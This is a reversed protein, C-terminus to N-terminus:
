SRFSCRSSEYQRRIVKIYNERWLQNTTKNRKKSEFLYVWDSALGCSLNKVGLITSSAVLFMPLLERRRLECYPGIFLSYQLCRCLFSVASLNHATRPEVHRKWNVSSHCVKRLIRCYTWVYTQQILADADERRKPQRWSTLVVCGNMNKSHKSHTARSSFSLCCTQRTYKFWCLFSILLPQIATLQRLTRTQEQDPEDAWWCPSSMCHSHYRAGLEM